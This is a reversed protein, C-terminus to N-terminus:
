VCSLTYLSSFPYFLFLENLAVLLRRLSSSNSSGISYKIVDFSEKSKDNGLTIFIM